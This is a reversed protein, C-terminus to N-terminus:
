VAGRVESGEKVSASCRSRGLLVTVRLPQEFIPKRQHSTQGPGTGIVHDQIQTAAMPLVEQGKRRLDRAADPNVDRGPHDIQRACTKLARAAFGVNREFHAIGLPQFWNGVLGNIQGNADACELM